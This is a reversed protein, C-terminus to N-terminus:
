PAAFRDKDTMAGLLFNLLSPLDVPVRQRVRLGILRSDLFAVILPQDQDADARMQAANRQRMLPIVVAPEARTVAGLVITRAADPAPGRRRIQRQRGVGEQGVALDLDPLPAGNPVEVM